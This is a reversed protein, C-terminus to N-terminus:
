DIIANHAMKKMSTDALLRITTISKHERTRPVGPSVRSGPRGPRVITTCSMMRGCTPMMKPHQNQNSPDQPLATHMKRTPSMSHQRRPAAPVQQMVHSSPSAYPPPSTTSNPAMTAGIAPIVSNIRINVKFIARRNSPPSTKQLTHM